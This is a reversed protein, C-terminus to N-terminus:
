MKTRLTLGIDKARREVAKRVADLSKDPPLTDALQEWTKELCQFEVLWGMDREYDNRREPQTFGRQKLEAILMPYSEDIRKAIERAIEETVRKKFSAKDESTLEWDFHREIKLNWGAPAKRTEYGLGSVLDLPKDKDATQYWDELAIMVRDLFWEDAELWHQPSLNWKDSWMILNNQLNLREEQMLEPPESFTELGVTHFLAFPTNVAFSLGSHTHGSKAERIVIGFDGAFASRAHKYLPYIEDRLENAAVQAFDEFSRLFAIRHQWFPADEVVMGPKSPSYNHSM